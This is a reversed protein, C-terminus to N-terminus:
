LFPLSMEGVEASNTTFQVIVRSRSEDKLRARLDYEWRWLGDVTKGDVRDGSLMSLSRSSCTYVHIRMYKCLLGNIIFVTFGGIFSM